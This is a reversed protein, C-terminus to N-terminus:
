SKDGTDNGNIRRLGKRIQQHQKRLLKAQFGVYMFLGAYGPTLKALYLSGVDFRDIFGAIALLYIMATSFTLVSGIFLGIFEWSIGYSNWQKVTEVYLVLGVGGWISVFLTLGDLASWITVVLWLLAFLLMNLDRKDIM